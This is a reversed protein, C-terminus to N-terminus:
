PQTMRGYKNPKTKKVTKAHIEGTESMFDYFHGAKWAVVDHAGRVGSCIGVKGM